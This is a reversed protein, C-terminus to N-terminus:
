SHCAHWQPFDFFFYAVQFLIALYSDSYSVVLLNATTTKQRNKRALLRDLLWQYTTALSLFTIHCLILFSLLFVLAFYRILKFLILLGGRRLPSLELFLYSSSFYLVTLSIMPVCLFISFTSKFVNNGLFSLSLYNFSCFSCLRYFIPSFVVFNASLM